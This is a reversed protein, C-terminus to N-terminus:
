LGSLMDALKAMNFNKKLARLHREKGVKDIVHAMCADKAKSLEDQMEPTDHKLPGYLEQYVSLYKWAM